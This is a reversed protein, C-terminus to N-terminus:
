EIVEDAIALLDPPVTLGLAKATKLNIILEFKTPQLIPLDAPKEGKLIRAAYGGVQRYVDPLDIGYSILGGYAAYERFQYMTPVAHRAALAVLRDRRTDFFPSAAVLLAAIHHQDVTEFAAEIDRDTAAPLVDIHLGLARAAEQVDTLQSEAVRFNTNLLLGVTTAHPILDHLLGLRKAELTTTLINIGTVNGGPRNYSAVLGLKVPDGGIAFVIPITSTAAKAALAAPEGGTVVLVTVPKRVLELAQAPLRDYQGQAWHYEVTVNRGDIFGGDSLGRRFAAVLHASDEASRASLFGVVPMLQQARAALPWALAAGGLLTIFERRRINLRNGGGKHPLPPLPTALRPALPSAQSQAERGGGRVGGWLPSPFMQRRRKM